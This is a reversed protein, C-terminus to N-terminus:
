VLKSIMLGVLFSLAYSIAFTIPWALWMWRTKTARVLLVNLVISLLLAFLIPGCGGFGFASSPLGQALCDAAFLGVLSGLVCSRTSAPM